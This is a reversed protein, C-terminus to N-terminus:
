RPDDLLEAADTASAAFLYGARLQQHQNALLYSYANSSQLFIYESDTQNEGFLVSKQRNDISCTCLTGNSSAYHLSFTLM